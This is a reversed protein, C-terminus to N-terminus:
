PTAGWPAFTVQGTALAMGYRRLYRRRALRRQRREPYTADMVRTYCPRCLPSGTARRASIRVGREGESSGCVICSTRDRM